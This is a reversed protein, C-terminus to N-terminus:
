WGGKNVFNIIATKYSAPWLSSDAHPLVYVDNISWSASTRRWTTRWGTRSSRIRSM